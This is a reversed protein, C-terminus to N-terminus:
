EGAGQTGRDPDGPPNRPLPRLARAAAIRVTSRRTPIIPCPARRTGAGSMMEILAAPTPAHHAPSGELAPRAKAEATVGDRADPDPNAGSGSAPTRGPGPHGHEMGHLTAPAARPAAALAPAGTTVSPTCKLWLRSICRDRRGIGPCVGGREHAWVVGRLGDAAEALAPRGRHGSEVLMAATPQGQPMHHEASREAALAAQDCPPVHGAVGDEESPPPQDRDDGGRHREDEVRDGQDLQEVGRRGPPAPRGPSRPAAPRRCGTIAPPLPRGPNHKPLWSCGVPATAGGPRRRPRPQITAIAISNIPPMTPPVPRMARVTAAM